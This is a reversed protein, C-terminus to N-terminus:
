PTYKQGPGIWMFNVEKKKSKVKKVKGERKVAVWGETTSRLPKNEIDHLEMDVNLYDQLALVKKELYTIRINLETKSM